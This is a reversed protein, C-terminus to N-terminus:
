SRCARDGATLRRGLDAELDRRIRPRDVAALRDAKNVIVAQRDLRPVVDAPLRRAPGRRPVEGPRHGLRRRRGRCCPRSGNATADSRGFGHGPSGPHRGLPARGDRTRPGRRRRALGPTAGLRDRDTAPVWAVPESTTPRRVSAASVTAGALANLPEIERGRDRRGPGPRLCGLPFGLRQSADAHAARARDTPIGLVDAAEAADILAALCRRLTLRRTSPRRRGTRTGM